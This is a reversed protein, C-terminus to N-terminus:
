LRGSIHGRNKNNFPSKLYTIKRGNPEFFVLFGVNFTVMKIQLKRLAIVTLLSLQLQRNLLLVIGNVHYIQTFDFIYSVM